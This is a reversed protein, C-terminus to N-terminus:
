PSYEPYTNQFMTYVFSSLLHYLGVGQLQPSWDWTFNAKWIELTGLQVVTIYVVWTNRDVWLMVGEKEGFIFLLEECDVSAECYSYLRRWNQLTMPLQLTWSAPPPLHSFLFLSFFHSIFISFFTPSLFPSFPPLFPLSFLSPSFPPLFLLSLLLSSRIVTSLSSLCSSPFLCYPSVCLPYLPILPLSPLPQSSFFPWHLSLPGTVKHVFLTSSISTM